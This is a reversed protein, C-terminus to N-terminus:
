EDAYGFAEFDKKYTERVLELTEDTYYSHWDVEKSRNLHPLPRLGFRTRIPEFDEELTEFHGIYDCHCTGNDDYFLDYQPRFHRDMLRVPLACVKRVFADFGEDESMYGFLFRNYERLNFKLPDTHYKSEYCSVLRSFPNRVFSFSFYSSQAETLHHHYIGERIVAKHISYDDAIPDNLFTAKISSCAVKSNVYYVLKLEDSVIYQMPDLTKDMQALHEDLIKFFQEQNISNNTKM